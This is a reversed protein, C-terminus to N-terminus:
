AKKSYLLTVMVLTRDTTAKQFPNIKVYDLQKLSHFFIRVENMVFIYQLRWFEVRSSIVYEWDKM